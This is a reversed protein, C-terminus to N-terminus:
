FLMHWLLDLRGRRIMAWGSYRMVRRIEQRYRAQYCHDPCHKCAPKPDMPCHLRKFFSHALLKSCNECLV